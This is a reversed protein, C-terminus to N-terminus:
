RGRHAPESALGAAWNAGSGWRPRTSLRWGPVGITSLHLHVRGQRIHPELSEPEESVTSTSAPRGTGTTSLAAQILRHWSAIRVFAALRSRGAITSACGGCRQQRWPLRIPKLPFAGPAIFRCSGPVNEAAASHRQDCGTIVDSITVTGGTTAARYLPQFAVRFRM